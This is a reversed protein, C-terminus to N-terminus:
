KVNKNQCTLIAKGRIQQLIIICRMWWLRMQAIQTDRTVSNSIYLYRRLPSVFQNMETVSEELVRVVALTEVVTGAIHGVMLAASGTLGIRVIMMVLTGM